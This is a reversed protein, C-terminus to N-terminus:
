KGGAAPKSGAAPQPPKEGRFDSAAKSPPKSKKDQDRETARGQGQHSKPKSDGPSRSDRKPTAPTRSQSAEQSASRSGSSFDGRDPTPKYSQNPKSSTNSNSGHGGYLGFSTQAADIDRAAELDGFHAKWLARGGHLNGLKKRLVPLSAATTKSESKALASFADVVTRTLLASNVTAIALMSQVLVEASMSGCQELLAITAQSQQLLKLLTAQNVVQFTSQSRGGKENKKSSSGSAVRSYVHAVLPKFASLAYGPSYVRERLWPRHLADWFDMTALDCTPRFISGKPRRSIGDQLLREVARSARGQHSGSVSRHSPLRDSDSDDRDSSGSYDSSSRVEERTRRPRGSRFDQDSSAFRTAKPPEPAPAAYRLPASTGNDGHRQAFTPVSWDPRTGTASQPFLLGESGPLYPRVPVPGVSGGTHDRPDAQSEAPAFDLSSTAHPPVQSSSFGHAPVSQQLRSLFASDRDRSARLAALEDRMGQILDAPVMVELDPPPAAITADPKTESNM